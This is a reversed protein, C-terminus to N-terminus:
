KKCSCGTCSNCSNTKKIRFKRVLSYLIYSFAAILILYVINEQTM